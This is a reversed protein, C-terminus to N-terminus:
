LICLIEGLILLGIIATFISMILVAGAAVDKILGIRDDHNPQIYDVIMEIATNVCELTVVSGCCLIIILLQQLSAKLLTFTIVVLLSIVLQIRVSHDNLCYKLGNFAWHFKNTLSKM